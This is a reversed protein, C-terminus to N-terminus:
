ISILALSLVRALSVKTQCTSPTFLRCQVSIQSRRYARTHSAMLAENNSRKPLSFRAPAICSPSFLENSRPAVRPDREWVQRPSRTSRKFHQPLQQQHSHIVNDLVGMEVMQAVAPRSSPRVATWGSWLRGDSWAMAVVSNGFAARSRRMAARLTSM